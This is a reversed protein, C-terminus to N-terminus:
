ALRPDHAEEATATILTARAEAGLRHERHRPDHTGLLLDWLANTNGFNRDPRREHHFFHYRQIWALYGSHFERYHLLFHVWEYAYYASLTGLGLACTLALSGSLVYFPALIVPAMLYVMLFGANYVRRDSMDRHHYLHFSGLFAYLWRFPYRSHYAWRHIAYELFTWWLVGLGFLLTFGLATTESRLVTHAFFYVLPAIMLLLHVPNYSAFYKILWPYKEVTFTPQAM